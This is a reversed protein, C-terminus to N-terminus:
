EYAIAVLLQVDKKFIEVVRRKAQGIGLYFHDEESVRLIFKTTDEQGGEAPVPM